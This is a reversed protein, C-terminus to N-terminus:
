ARDDRDEPADLGALFQEFQRGIDEGTPLPEDDALLSSGEAQARHFTDYQQELGEVVQRVEAHEELYAAIEADTQEASERLSALDIDIDAVRGVHELLSIAARPYSMQAVYHPVHVVVGQMAHGWEGLRIELLAQASSPVRLEGQWASPGLVLAPDNAHETLAVPRTHPVAMPVAAMAVVRDVGLREVVERVARAFGEWRIDPEPGVLLLYARGAADRQRRVVLRPAEYDAYHDRVFSVPPRRARYDFLADVDFTAVVPGREELLHEAAVTAANGADLFGDLALVLTVPETAEGDADDVVHVLRESRDRDM